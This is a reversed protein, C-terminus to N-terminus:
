MGMTPMRRPSSIWQSQKKPLKIQILLVTRSSQKTMESDLIEVELPIVSQGYASGVFINIIDGVTVKLDDSAM